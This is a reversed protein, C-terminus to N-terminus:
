KEYVKKLNETRKFDIDLDKIRKVLETIKKDINGNSLRLNNHEFIQKAIEKLETIAEKYIKQQKTTHSQENELRSITRDVLEKSEIDQNNQFSYDNIFYKFTKLILLLHHSHLINTKDNDLPQYNLVLENAISSIIQPKKIVYDILERYCKQKNWLIWYANENNKKMGFEIFDIQKDEIQEATLNNDELEEIKPKNTKKVIKGVDYAKLQENAIKQFRLKLDVVPLGSLKSILELHTTRFIENGNNLVFTLLEDIHNILEYQPIKKELNKQIYFSVFDIANNIIEALKNVGYKIRVEDADKADIDKYQVVSVNFGNELLFLGNSINANSGAQDNDFALIINKLNKLGSLLVLSNQSLATGMTAVVQEYGASYYSICDFFGEVIILSHCENHSIRHYNWLIKSKDFITNNQTHLYKVEPHSSIDRGSFAVITGFSNCIPFTIRNMLVPHMKENLINAKLLEDENFKKDEPLDAGLYNDKNTLWDHISNLDNPAFGLQFEKIIEENIQRQLLYDLAYKNEDVFLQGTYIENVRKNAQILRQQEVSWHEFNNSKSTFEELKSLDYNILEAVKKVAQHYTIKEYKEVFNIVNGSTGCVFCKFINKKPSVALSPHTDNHFPCLGFYNNGKRKLNIYQSIIDVINASVIIDNVVDFYNNLVKAM